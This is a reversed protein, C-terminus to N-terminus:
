CETGVRREASRLSVATTSTVWSARTAAYEWRSTTTQSPRVSGRPTGAHVGHTVEEEAHPQRETRSAGAPDAQQPRPQGREPDPERDGPQQQDEGGEVAKGLSEFADAGPCRDLRLRPFGCEA